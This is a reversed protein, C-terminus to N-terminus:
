LESKKYICVTAGVFEKKSILHYQKIKEEIIKRDLDVHVRFINLYDTSIKSIENDIIKKDKYENVVLNIPDSYKKRYFYYDKTEDWLFGIVYFNNLHKINEMLYSTSEKYQQKSPSSFYELFYVMHFVYFSIIFFLLLYIKRDKKLIVVLIRAVILYAAPLSIILYTLNYYGVSILSLLYMGAFPVILWLWLLIDVNFIIENLASKRNKYIFYILKIFSLSLFIGMIIFISLFYIIENKTYSNLSFIIGKGAGFAYGLFKIFFDYGVSRGSFKIGFQGYLMVLCPIYLVIFIASLKIVSFTGRKKLLSLLLIASIQIFSFYFGFYHLYSAFLSASLFLIADKDIAVDKTLNKGFSKIIKFWFYSSWLVAFLLASYARAEQSYYIPMYMVAVFASAILGEKSSYIEKGLIYILLISFWGFIASLLRLAYESDGIVTIIFHLLIFYGPPYTDTEYLYRIIEAVTDKTSVFWASIEDSCLSQYDLYLFRLAGGIAFIAWFLININKNDIKLFAKVNVL